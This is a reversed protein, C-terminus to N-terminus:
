LFKSFQPSEVIRTRGSTILKKRPNAKPTPPV